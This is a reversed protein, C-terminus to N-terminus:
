WIITKSKKSEDWWSHINLYNKQKVKFKLYGAFEFLYIQCSLRDMKFKGIINFIIKKYINNVKRIWKIWDGQRHVRHIAKCIARSRLHIDWRCQQWVESDKCSKGSTKQSRLTNTCWYNCYFLVRKERFISSLTQLFM